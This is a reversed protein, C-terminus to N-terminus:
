FSFPSRILPTPPLASQFPLKGRWLSNGFANLCISCIIPLRTGRSRQHQYRSRPLGQCRSTNGSDSRCVKQVLHFLDQRRQLYSRRATGQEGSSRPRTGLAEFMDAVEREFQGYTGGKLMRLIKDDDWDLPANRKLKRVILFAATTHRNGFSGVARKHNDQKTSANDVRYGLADICGSNHMGSTTNVIYPPTCESGSRSQRQSDCFELEDGKAAKRRMRM